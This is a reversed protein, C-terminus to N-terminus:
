TFPLIACPASIKPTLRGVNYSKILFSLISSYFSHISRCVFAIALLSVVVISWVTLLEVIERRIGFVRWSRYLDHRDSAIIMLASALLVVTSYQDNRPINFYWCTVLLSFGIILIDLARYVTSLKNHHQPLIGSYKM